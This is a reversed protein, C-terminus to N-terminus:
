RLAFVLWQVPPTEHQLRQQPRAIQPADVRPMKLPAVPQMKRREVHATLM